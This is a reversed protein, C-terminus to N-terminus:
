FSFYVKRRQAKLSSHLSPFPVKFSTASLVRLHHSRVILPILYQILILLLIVVNRVNQNAHRSSLIKNLQWNLDADSALGSTNKFLILYLLVDGWSMIAACRKLKTTCTSQLALMFLTRDLKLRLQVRILWLLQSCSHPLRWMQLSDEPGLLRMKIVAASPVVFVM